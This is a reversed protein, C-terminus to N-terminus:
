DRTDTLAIKSILKNTNMPKLQRRVSNGKTWKQNTANWTGNDGVSPVNM